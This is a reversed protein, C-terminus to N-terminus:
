REWFKIPRNHLSTLLAGHGIRNKVEHDNVLQVDLLHALESPGIVDAYRNALARDLADVLSELASTKRDVWVILHIPLAQRAEGFCLDEATADYDSIYVAKVKEDLSGLSEAVQKGISYCCYKCANCDGERLSDIVAQRDALGAKQACFDLAQALAIEATSEASPSRLAIEVGVDRVMKTSVEKTM